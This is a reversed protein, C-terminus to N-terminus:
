PNLLKPERQTRIPENSVGGPQEAHSDPQESQSDPQEEEIDVQQVECSGSLSDPQHPVIYLHCRGQGAKVSERQITIGAKELQPLHRRVTREDVGSEDGIRKLSPWCVHATGTGKEPHPRASDALSWAVARAPGRLSTASRVWRLCEISM